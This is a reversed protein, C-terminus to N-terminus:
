HAPHDMPADPMAPVEAKPAAAAAEEVAPKAAEVASAKKAEEKPICGSVFLAIGGLVLLSATLKKMMFGSEQQKVVSCWLANRLTVMNGIDSRRPLPFGAVLCFARRIAPNVNPRHDTVIVPDPATYGAQTTSDASM